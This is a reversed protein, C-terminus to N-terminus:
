TMPEIDARVLRFDRGAKRTETKCYKKGADDAFHLQATAEDNQVTVECRIFQLEEVRREDVWRVDIIQEIPAESAPPAKYALVLQMKFKM